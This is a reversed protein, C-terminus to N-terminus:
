KQVLAPNLTPTNPADVPPLDSNNSAGSSASLDRILSEIIIVKAELFRNQNQIFKIENELTNLKQSLKDIEEKIDPLTCNLSIAYISLNIREPTNFILFSEFRQYSFEIPIRILIATDAFDITLPIKKSGLGPVSISIEAGFIYGEGLQLDPSNILLFDAGKFAISQNLSDSNTQGEFIKNFTVM